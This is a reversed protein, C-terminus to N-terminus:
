FRGNVAISLATVLSLLIPVGLYRCDKSENTLGPPQNSYFTRAWGGYELLKWGGTQVRKCGQYTGLDEESINLKLSAPVTLFCMSFCNAMGPLWPSPSSPDRKLFSRAALNPFACNASLGRPMGRGGDWLQPWMRGLSGVALLQARGFSQLWATEVKCPVGNCANKKPLEGSIIPSSNILDAYPRPSERGLAAEKWKMKLLCERRGWYIM